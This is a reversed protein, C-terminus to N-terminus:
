DVAVEFIRCVDSQFGQGDNEREYMMPTIVHQEGSLLM